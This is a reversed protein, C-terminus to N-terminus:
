TDTTQRRQVSHRPATLKAPAPVSLSAWASTSPAPAAMPSKCLWRPTAAAPAPLVLHAHCQRNAPPRPAPPRDQPISSAQARACRQTTPSPLSSVRTLSQGARCRPGSGGGAAGPTGGLGRGAGTTPGGRSTLTCEPSEAGGVGTGADGVAAAPAA